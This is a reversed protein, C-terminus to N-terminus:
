GEQSDADAPASGRRRDHRQTDAADGTKSADDPEEARQEIQQQPYNRQYLDDIEAPTSMGEADMGPSWRAAQYQRESLLLRLKDNFTEWRVSDFKGGPAPFASKLGGWGTYGALVLQEDPTAQRGERRLKQLLELARLNREM